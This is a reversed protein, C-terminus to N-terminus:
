LTLSYSPPPLLFSAPHPPPSPTLYTLSLLSKQLIAERQLNYSDFVLPESTVSSSQSAPQSTITSSHFAATSPQSTTTYQSPSSSSTVLKTAKSWNPEVVPTASGRHQKLKQEHKVKRLFGVPCDLLRFWLLENESDELRQSNRQCLAIAQSLGEAVDKEQQTSPFPSAAMNSPNSAVLIGQYRKNHDLTTPYASILM